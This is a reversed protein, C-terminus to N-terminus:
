SVELSIKQKLLLHLAAQGCDPSRHEEKSIVANTPEPVMPRRHAVPFIPARTTVPCSATDPDHYSSPRASPSQVLSGPNPRFGQQVTGADDPREGIVRVTGM